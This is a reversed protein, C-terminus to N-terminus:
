VEINKSAFPSAFSESAENKFEVRERVSLNNDIRYGLSEKGSTTLIVKIMENTAKQLSFDSNTNLFWKRVM